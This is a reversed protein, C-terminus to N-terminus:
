CCSLSGVVDPLGVIAPVSTYGSITSAYTVSSAVAAIPVGSGAM